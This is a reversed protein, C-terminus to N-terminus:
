AKIIKVGKGKVANRTDIIIRSHKLIFNYDYVSHDTSILVADCSGLFGASLTISKKNLKHRRMSPIKPIYPDNYFVNAGKQELIKILELSPSERIDDSDKKYAMGLILIKANKVSLGKLNLANQLKEVVYEPMRTNIEGALEIFKTQSNYQRAKWSLYFPDIPICHGGWGPGPYFPMFGFPKTKSAEIVEWIDFGMKDFLIKLENVLAINVARFTNELMKTSEAVKASSVKVVKDIVSGYLLAAVETSYKDIGGVVKPITKTTFNKNGPDEREPSFALYFDRGAKYGSEELIPKVVEDTTGPYTTSELVVLSGKKLHKSIIRATNVVFSMDPEKMQTLPTPVCIIVCDTKELLIFNSTPLFNKLSKIDKSPIHKIYSTGNKLANVKKEDVDFGFTKFGGRSFEMALPLGVYGLGIIGVVSKRKLINDKLNM